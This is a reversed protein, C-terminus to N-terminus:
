SVEFWEKALPIRQGKLIAENAKLVTVTAEYGEKFGAAPLRSKKLSDVYEKVKVPEQTGFNTTLDEVASQVLHSNTVFARLAYHLPTEDQALPDSAPTAKQATLKTADADLAIGSEKYFADKRAYVEWGTLPADTEKFMWARRERCMITSDLGYFLEYDSDFSYTLACNCTFLEGGAYEFVAQVTDPVDRGDDWHMISGLGNVAVPRAMLFWNALDAQHVGLEGILGPSTQRSLRWNLEQERQPNASALRWSKKRHAQSRAAIIKGMAGTRVFKVLHYRQPDARSQLGAQFNLKFAERAAQAIVRADELSNALPAECYVHKGAQLAALVIERHQHSPTAVLVAQVSKSDLM